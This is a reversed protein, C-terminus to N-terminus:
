LDSNFIREISKLPNKEPQYSFEQHFDEQEKSWSNEHFPLHLMEQINKLYLGPYFKEMYKGFFKTLYNLCYVPKKTISFIGAHKSSNTVLMDSVYLLDNVSIINKTYGFSSSYTYPLQNAINTIYENNTILFWDKGLTDILERLNFDLFPNEPIIDKPASQPAGALILSLIKKGKIQPYYFEIRKRAAMQQKEQLLDWSVLYPMNDWFTVNDEWEYYTKLVKSTFPSGTFIDTCRIFTKKKKFDPDASAKLFINFQYDFPAALLLRKQGAAASPIKIPISSDMCIINDANTCFLRRGEEMKKNMAPLDTATKNLYYEFNTDPLAASLHNKVLQLDLNFARGRTSVFSITNKDM